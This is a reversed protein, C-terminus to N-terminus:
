PPSKTYTGGVSCRSAVSWIGILALILYRGRYYYWAAPSRLLDYGAPLLDDPTGPLLFMEIGWKDINSNYALANRRFADRVEAPGLLIPLFPRHGASLGPCHDPGRSQLRPLEAAAAGGLLVPTLKVNM